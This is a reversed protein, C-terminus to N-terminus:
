VKDVIGKGFVCYVASWQFVIRGELHERDAMSTKHLKYHACFVGRNSPIGTLNLEQKDNVYYM